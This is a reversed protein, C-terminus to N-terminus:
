AAAESDKDDAKGTEASEQDDVPSATSESNVVDAAQALRMAEAKKALAEVRLMLSRIDAPAPPPAQGSTAEEEMAQALAAITDAEEAADISTFAASASTVMEPLDGSDATTDEQLEMELVADSVNEFRANAFSDEAEPM